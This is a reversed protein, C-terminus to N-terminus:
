STNFENFTKTGSPTAMKPNEANIARLIVGGPDKSSDYPVGNQVQEAIQQQQPTLQSVTNSKYGNVLSDINMPSVNLGGIRLSNALDVRDQFTKVKGDAAYSQIDQIQGPTLNPIPQPAGTQAGGGISDPFWMGNTAKIGQAGKLAAFGPLQQIRAMEGQIGAQENAYKGSAIGENVNNM